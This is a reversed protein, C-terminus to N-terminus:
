VTDRKRTLYQSMNRILTHFDPSMLKIELTFISYAFFKNKTIYNKNM